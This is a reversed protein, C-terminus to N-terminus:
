KTENQNNIVKGVLLASPDDTPSKEILIYREKIHELVELAQRYERPMQPEVAPANEIIKRALILGEKCHNYAYTDNLLNTTNAKDAFYAIQQTLEIILASRSITDGQTSATNNM